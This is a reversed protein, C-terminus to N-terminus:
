IHQLHHQLNLKLHAKNHETNTQTVTLLKKKCYGTNFWLISIIVVTHRNTHTKTYDSDDLWWQGRANQIDAHRWQTHVYQSSYARRTLFFAM